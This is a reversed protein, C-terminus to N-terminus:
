GGAPKVYVYLTVLIDPVGPPTARNRDYRWRHCDRRNHRANDPPVSLGAVPLSGWGASTKFSFMPQPTATRRPLWSPIARSQWRTGFNFTYPHGPCLNQVARVLRRAITHPHAQRRVGFRRFSIKGSVFVNQALCLASVSMILPACMSSVALRRLSM